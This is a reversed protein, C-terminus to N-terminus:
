RDMPILDLGAILSFGYAKGSIDIQVAKLVPITPHIKARIELNEISSLPGEHEQSIIQISFLQNVTPQYAPDINFIRTMVCEEYENSSADTAASVGEYDVHFSGVDLPHNNKLDQYFQDTFLAAPALLNIKGKQRGYLRVNFDYNITVVYVPGLKPDERFETVKANGNGSKILWSTRDSSDNLDYHAEENLPESWASFHLLVAALVALISQKKNM